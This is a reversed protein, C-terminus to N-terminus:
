HEPLLGMVRDRIAAHIQPDWEAAIHAQPNFKAAYPPQGDRMFGLEPDGLDIHDLRHGANWRGWVFANRTCYNVAQNVNIPLSKPQAPGRGTSSPDLFVALHVALPSERNRLDDLVELATHGGWSNGVLAVRDRPWRQLHEDVFDAIGRARPPKKDKIQGARTGNWNFYEPQVAEQRLDGALQFLGSNGEQRRATGEIQAPTPDSDIGGILVVLLHAPRKSRTLRPRLPQDGASLPAHFTLAITIFLLTIRM